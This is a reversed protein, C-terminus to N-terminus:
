KLHPAMVNRGQFFYRQEENFNIQSCSTKSGLLISGKEDPNLVRSDLLFVFRGNKLGNWFNRFGKRRNTPLKPSFVQQQRVLSSHSRFGYAM